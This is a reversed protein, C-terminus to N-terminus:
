SQLYRRPIQLRPLEQPSVIPRKVDQSNRSLFSYLWEYTLTKQIKRRCIESAREPYRLKEHQMRRQCFHLPNARSSRHPHTSPAATPFIKEIKHASKPSPGPDFRFCRCPSRLRPLRRLRDLCIRRLLRCCSRTRRAVHFEGSCCHIRDSM